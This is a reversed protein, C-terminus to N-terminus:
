AVKPLETGTRMVLGIIYPECAIEEGYYGQDRFLRCLDGTIRAEQLPQTHLAICRREHHALVVVLPTRKVQAPMIREVAFQTAYQAPINVSRFVPLPENAPQAEGKGGFLKDVSAPGLLL